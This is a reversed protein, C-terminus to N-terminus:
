NYREAFVVGKDTFRSYRQNNKRNLFENFVEKVYEKGDDTQLLNPTCNSSEITEALADTISQAYKYNLPITWGFNSFNDIAVIIYRYGKNKKPDFGNMDLLDSSWTDDISRNITKNTEYNKKPSPSCIENDNIFIKVLEKKM